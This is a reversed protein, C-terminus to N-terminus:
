NANAYKALLNAADTGFLGLKMEAQMAPRMASWSAGEYSGSGLLQGWRSTLRMQALIRLAAAEIDSPLSQFGTVYSVQINGLGGIPLPTLNLGPAVSNTSWTGWLRTLIASRSSGDIQDRDIGFDAGEFLQTQTSPSSPTGAGWYGFLNQYIAVGFVLAGATITQSAPQSVVMTKASTNVSVVYTGNPTPQVSSMNQILGPGVVCQGPFIYNTSSLNTVTTSGQTTTGALIPCQIPRNQLVMVSDPPGSLYQTIPNAANSALLIPRGLHEAIMASVENILQQIILSYGDDPPGIPPLGLCIRASSVSCCADPIIAM